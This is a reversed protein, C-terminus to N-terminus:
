KSLHCRSRAPSALPPAGPLHPMQSRALAGTGPGGRVCSSLCSHHRTGPVTGSVPAAVAQIRNSAAPFGVGAGRPRQTKGSCAALLDGPILSTQDMEPNRELM